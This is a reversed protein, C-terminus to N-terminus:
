KKLIKISGNVSEAEIESSGDGFSANLDTGYYTGKTGQVGFDTKISGNGTSAEIQAGFNEPVYIKISGNVTEVSIDVNKATDALELSVSGNVSEVEADSALGTAEVSGNVVEANLEGSVKTVVLSGNVLEIERLDIDAPVMITYEVSSSGRSDKNWSGDSDQYDTEVSVRNGSQKMKVKVRDFAAQDSATIEATVKVAKQAWSEITIDGNVNELLLQGKGTLDFSREITDNVDAYSNFALLTAAVCLSKSFINM